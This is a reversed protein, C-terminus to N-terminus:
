EDLINVNVCEHPFYWLRGKIDDFFREIAGEECLVWNLQQFNLKHVKYPKSYDMMYLDEGSSIVKQNSFTPFNKTRLSILNPEPNLRIECLHCGTIAYIKGKFAHFDRVVFRSIVHNWVGQDAKSVWINTSGDTVVFVWGFISPSFVLIGKINTCPNIYSHFGPFNLEHRKIPNILCFDRTEWGYLILYGCTSGVFTRGGFSPLVTKFKRGNLDKLYCYYDKKNADLSISISMPHKSAMFMKRNRLAFTRWLKCVGSFALFDVVGLQMM